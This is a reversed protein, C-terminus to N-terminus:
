SVLPYDDIPDVIDHERPLAGTFGFLRENQEKCGQALDPYNSLSFSLAHDNVWVERQSNRCAGWLEDSRHAVLGNSPFKECFKESSFHKVM